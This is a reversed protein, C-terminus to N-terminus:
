PQPENKAKELELYAETIVQADLKAAHQVASAVDMPRRRCDEFTFIKRYYLENHVRTLFGGLDINLDPPGLVIGFRAMEDSQDEPIEMLYLRGTESDLYEVRKGM